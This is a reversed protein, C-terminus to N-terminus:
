LALGHENAFARIAAASEKPKAQLLFHPGEIEVVKARSVDRCIVESASSFVVRDESARLYLVPVQIRCLDTTLDVGLVARLRAHWVQPPVARISQELKGEVAKSRYRGLLLKAAVALPARWFPLRAFFKQVFTPVALPAKAFSCVLVLARLQPPRKAALSVAIPGSFSEALLIFPETKPLAALVVEELEVYGLPRDTPYSVVLSAAKLESAFGEFLAGSGDM